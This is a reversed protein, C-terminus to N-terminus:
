SDTSSSIQTGSVAQVGGRREVAGETIVSGAWLALVRGREFVTPRAQVQGGFRVGCILLVSTKHDFHLFSPMATRSIPKMSLLASIRLVQMPDTRIAFAPMTIVRNHAVPALLDM